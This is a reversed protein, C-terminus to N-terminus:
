ISRPMTATAARDCGPISRHSSRHDGARRLTNALNYHVSADGPGLEVSRRYALVAGAFAGADALAKGLNFWADPSSPHRKVTAQFAAVSHTMTQTMGRGSEEGSRESGARVADIRVKVSPM